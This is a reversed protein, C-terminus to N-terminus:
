LGREFAYRVPVPRPLQAKTGYALVIEERERLIIASPDGRYPRGGVFVRLRATSDACYRGICRANLRVGWVGFFTGLVYPVSSASEIHVVGSDDHTHLV